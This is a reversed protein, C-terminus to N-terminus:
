LPNRGYSLPYLLRRRLLHGSGSLGSVPSEQYGLICSDGRGPRRVGVVTGVLVALPNACNAAQANGATM